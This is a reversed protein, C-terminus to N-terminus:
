CMLQMGVAWSSPFMHTTGSARCLGERKLLKSIEPPNHNLSGQAGVAQGFPGSCKRTVASQAAFRCQLARALQPGAHLLDSDVSGFLSM